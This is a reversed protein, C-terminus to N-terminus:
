TIVTIVIVAEGNDDIYLCAPITVLDGATLKQLTCRWDGRANQHASEVVKGFLLVDQVQTRTVRRQKMRKVAHATITVKGSDVAIQAIRKRLFSDTMRYAVVKAM